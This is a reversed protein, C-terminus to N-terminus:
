LVYTRLNSLAAFNMQTVKLYCVFHFLACYILASEMTQIIETVHYVCHLCASILITCFKQGVWSYFFFPVFM